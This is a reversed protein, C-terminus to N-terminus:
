RVCIIYHIIVRHSKKVRHGRGKKKNKGSAKQKTPTRNEIRYHCDYPVVGFVCIFSSLVRVVSAQREEVHVVGRLRQLYFGFVCMYVCVVYLM